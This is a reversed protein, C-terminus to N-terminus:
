EPSVLKDWAVAKYVTKGDDNNLLTVTKTRKDVATVECEPLLPKKMKNVAPKKTKPDIPQYKWTEGKAPVVEAPEEEEAPAESGGEALKEVILAAGAVWNEADGVEDEIGLEEAKAILAECSPEDGGDAATGLAEYDVEETDIAEVVEGNASPAADGGTEDVVDSSESGPDDCAGAWQHNTLPEKGAYKGTTQKEGKWTRFRFCPAAEKLSAVFDEMGDADVGDLCDAGGLKKLENLVWAYHEDVSQRSRQPTDFLPESIQTRLGEIRIGDYTSPSKVIGAAYFYLKGKDNGKEYEGFKCDVLQAVGNEIGAPLGVNGMQIDDGKHADHAAKLKGLHKGLVKSKTKQAPMTAYESQFSPTPLM